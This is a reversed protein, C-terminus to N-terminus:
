TFAKQNRVQVEEDGTGVHELCLMLRRSEPESGNKPSKVTTKLLWKALATAAQFRAAITKGHMGRNPCLSQGPLFVKLRGLALMYIFICVCACVCIYQLYLIIFISIIHIVIYIYIYM